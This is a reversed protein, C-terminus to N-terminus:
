DLKTLHHAIQQAADPTGYIPSPSIYPRDRWIWNLAELVGRAVPDFRRSLGAALSEPRDSVYRVQACPVGLTACEEVLGGSDTVVGRCERITQICQPYPLPPCLTFSVVSRSPRLIPVSPHVPWILGM